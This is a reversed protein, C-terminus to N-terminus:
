FLALQGAPGPARFRTIDLPSRTRKLGVRRVAQEFRRALLAAVAGQGKMRAGFSSDYDRGGRMGQVHSMVKGARLPYHEALWTRFLPSIELPLRLVIYAAASAGAGAAAALVDELADDNLGPIAPAFMVGTPIGAATLRRITEVRRRPATARPEMRRALAHDLTTISVFVEALNEAALAALLDVDREVLASKTVLTVPHRVELLVELISRTLRLRREIPQYADTNAGLALPSCEYGPRALEARLLEAANTKAYLRSEFDLGPSLDLYAHTPRAYCYVCGHECGRYPNISQSFPLDPSQNRSIITRAREPTVTTALRPPADAAEWGDDFDEREVDLYRSAPAFTAGRGRPPEPRDGRESLARGWAAAPPESRNSEDVAL